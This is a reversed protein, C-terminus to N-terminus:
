SDGLEHDIEAVIHRGPAIAPATPSKGDASTIWALDIYAHDSLGEFAAISIEATGGSPLPVPGQFGGFHERWQALTRGGPRDPMDRLVQEDCHVVSAVIRTRAM